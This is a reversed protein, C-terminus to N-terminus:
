PRDPDRWWQLEFWLGSNTGSLLYCDMSPDFLVTGYPLPREMYHYSGYARGFDESALHSAPLTAQGQSLMVDDGVGPNSDWIGFGITLDEDWRLPIYVATDAPAEYDLDPSRDHMRRIQAFLEDVRLACANGGPPVEPWHVGVQTDLPGWDWGVFWLYEDNAWFSGELPGANCAANRWGWTPLMRFEIRMTGPCPAGEWAVINSAPSQVSGERRYATVQWRYVEGCRPTFDNIVVSRTHKDPRFPSAGYGDQNSYRVDFGDIAAPDGDWTWSLRV